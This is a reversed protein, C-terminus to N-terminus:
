TQSTLVTADKRPARGDKRDGLFPYWRGPAAGISPVHVREGDFTELATRAAQRPAVAELVELSGFTGLAAVEAPSGHELHLLDIAAHRGLQRVGLM